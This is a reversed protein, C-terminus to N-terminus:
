FSISVEGGAYASDDIIYRRRHNYNRNAVKLIGGLTSGVHVNAAIWDVPTYNLACEIGVTKYTWLGQSLHADKKVRHRENIFRGALAVSWNCAFQYVASLNLPYILNIQLQESYKWDIGIIPYVWDILMGTQAFIGIHFGINSCLVNRGWLMLDYNMYNNFNWHEINDFNISVQGRWIWEDVRETYGGLVLSITDFNTEKFYPNHQWNLYTKQYEVAATAAERNCPDYYYV